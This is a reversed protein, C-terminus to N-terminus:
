IFGVHKPVSTSDEPFSNLVYVTSGLDFHQNKYGKTNSVREQHRRTVSVHLLERLSKYTKYRVAYMQKHIHSDM